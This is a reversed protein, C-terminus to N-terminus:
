REELKVSQPGLLNQVEAVFDNTYAVLLTQPELRSITGDPQPLYLILSDQGQYRRFIQKLQDLVALENDQSQNAPLHINVRRQRPIVKPPTPTNKGPRARADSASPLTAVPQQAVELGAFLSASWGQDAGPESPIERGSAAVREPLPSTEETVPPPLEGPVAPYAALALAVLVLRGSQPMPRARATLAEGAAIIVGELPTARPVLIEAKGSFDEIQLITLEDGQESATEAAIPLRRIATILGAILLLAGSSDAAAVALSVPDTRSADPALKSNQPWLPHEATFYGLSQYARQLRELRSVPEVEHVEVPVPEELHLAPPRPSPEGWLDLLSLQGIVGGKVETEDDSNFNDNNSEALAPQSVCWEQWAASTQAIGAAAQALTERIGFQDLAGSWALREVQAASLPVIKILEDLRAFGSDPRNAVLQQAAPIGLVAALGSRIILGEPGELTFEARSSNIAPPLITLPYQRTAEAVEPIRKLDEVALTLAAAYYAAPQHLKFWELHGTIELRDYDVLDEEPNLAPAPLETRSVAPQGFSGRWQNLAQLATLLQGAQESVILKLLATGTPVVPGIQAASFVEGDAQVPQFATKDPLTGGDFNVLMLDPQLQAPEGAEGLAAMRAAQGQGAGELIAGITGPGTELRLPQGQSYAEFSFGGQSPRYFTIGLLYAVLSGALQTARLYHAAGAGDLLSGAALLGEALGSRSILELEGVLITQAPSHDPEPWGALATNCRQHLEALFDKEVPWWSACRGAILRNNALADPWDAENYHAILKAPSRLSFDREVQKTGHSHLWDQGAAPNHQLTTPPYQAALAREIRKRLAHYDRAQEPRVYRAEGTGVLGTHLDRSLKILAANLGVKEKADFQENITTSPPPIALFFDPGFIDRLVQARQRAEAIKRVQLAATVPGGHYPAIAILGTKHVALTELDLAALLPKSGAEGLGASVLRCLNAYGAQSHALLLLGFPLGRRQGSMLVGVETGALPLLGNVTMLQQWQPLGAMSFTDTLAAALPGQSSTSAALLSLQGALEPLDSTGGFSSFRSYIQLYAFYPQQNQAM